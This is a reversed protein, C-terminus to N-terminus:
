VETKPDSKIYVVLIYWLIKFESHGVSVINMIKGYRGAGWQVMEDGVGMRMGAAWRLKKNSEEEM